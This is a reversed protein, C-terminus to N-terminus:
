FLVRWFLSASVQGLKLKSFLLFLVASMASLCLRYRKFWTTQRMQSSNLISRFSKLLTGFFPPIATYVVIGGV